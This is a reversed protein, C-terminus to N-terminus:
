IEIKLDDKLSELKEIQECEKYPDDSGTTLNLEIKNNTTDLISCFFGLNM